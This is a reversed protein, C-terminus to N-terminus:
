RKSRGRLHLSAEVYRPDPEDDPTKPAYKTKWDQLICLYEQLVHFCLKENEAQTKYIQLKTLVSPKAERLGFDAALKKAADLPAIRFLKATFAIVDGTEQCGFCHYHDDYLKLSPTKDDHFPCRVMGNRSVRLGYREAAMRPTVRSKVAEFITM